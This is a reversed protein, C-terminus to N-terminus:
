WTYDGRICYELIKRYSLPSNPFIYFCDLRAMVRADDKQTNDWSYSLSPSTLPHEAVQLVDKLGNFFIIKSSPSQTITAVLQTV